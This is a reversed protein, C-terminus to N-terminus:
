PLKVAGPCFSFGLDDMSGYTSNVYVTTGLTYNLSCMQEQTIQLVDMLYREANRRVQGLPESNLNIGFGHGQSFYVITFDTENAVVCEEGEACYDIKGALYYNGDNAPDEVTTGNHIFDRVILPDGGVTVISLEGGPVGTGNALFGTPFTVPPRTPENDPTQSIFFFAGVALLIVLVSGIIWYSAKM